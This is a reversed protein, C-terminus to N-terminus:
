PAPAALYGAAQPYNVNVVVFNHNAAIATASASVQPQATLARATEPDPAVARITEGTREFAAVTANRLTKLGAGIGFVALSLILIMETSLVAGTDDAWLQRLLARM